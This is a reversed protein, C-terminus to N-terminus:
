KKKAMEQRMLQIQTVLTKIYARLESVEKRLEALESKNVLIGDPNRGMELPAAENSANNSTNTISNENSRSANSNSSCVHPTNGDVEYKNWRKKADPGAGDIKSIRIQKKCTLCEYPKQLLQSM